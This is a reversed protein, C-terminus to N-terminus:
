GIGDEGTEERRMEVIEGAQPRDGARVYYILIQLETTVDIHHVRVHPPVTLARPAFSLIGRIGADAAADAAEQAAGAPVTLIAVEIRLEQVFSALDQMDHVPVSDILAGVKAPDVDFAGVISMRKNGFFNYRCLATGLNGVGILAVRVVEDQGLVGELIEVLYSVSYGYGKRGLEGLQSFDRRVTASDIHLADGVEASSVRLRGLAHLSQLHRYYLPLRRATAAPLREVNM